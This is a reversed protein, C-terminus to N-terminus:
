IKWSDSWGYRDLAADIASAIAVVSKNQQYQEGYMRRTSELLFKLVTDPESQELLIINSM